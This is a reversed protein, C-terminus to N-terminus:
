STLGAGRLLRADLNREHLVARTLFLALWFPV